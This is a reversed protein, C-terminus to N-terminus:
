TVELVTYPIGKEQLEVYITEQQFSKILAEALEIMQGEFVEKDDGFSFIVIQVSEENVVDNNKDTYVGRQFLFSADPSASQKARVKQTFAVVDDVSYTPRKGVSLGVFLRATRPVVDVRKVPNYRLARADATEYVPGEPAFKVGRHRFTRMDVPYTGHTKQSM